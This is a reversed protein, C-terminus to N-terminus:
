KNEKIECKLKILKIAYALLSAYYKIQNEMSHDIGINPTTGLLLQDKEKAIRTRKKLPVQLVGVCEVTNDKEINIFLPTTYAPLLTNLDVFPDYITSSQMSNILIPKMSTIAEGIVGKKYSYAQNTVLSFFSSFNAQLDTPQSIQKTQKIQAAEKVFYFKCIEVGFLEKVQSHVKKELSILNESELCQLFYDNLMDNYKLQIKSERNIKIKKIMQSLYNACVVGYLEEDYGFGEVKSNDSIELIGIVDNDIIIPLCFSSLYSLQTVQQGQQSNALSQVQNHQIVLDDDNDKLQIYIYRNSIQNKMNIPLKGRIIDQFIGKAPLCNQKKLEQDYSYMVGSISELIWLRVIESKFLNPFQAAVSQQIKNLDDFHDFEHILKVLQALRNTFDRYSVFQNAMLSVLKNRKEMNKNRSIHIAFNNSGHEIIDMLIQSYEFKLCNIRFDTDSPIIMRKLLNLSNQEQFAQKQSNQNSNEEQQLQELDKASIKKKMSEVKQTLTAIKKNLKLENENLRLIDIELAVNDKKLSENDKVLDSLLIRLNHLSNQSNSSTQQIQVQNNAHNPQQQNNAGKITPSNINSAAARENAYEVFNTDLILELRQELQKIAKKDVKMQKEQQLIKRNLKNIEIENDKKMQLLQRNEIQVHHLQAQLSEIQMKFFSIQEQKEQQKSNILSLKLENKASESLLDTLQHVIEMPKKFDAEKKGTSRLEEELLVLTQLIQNKIQEYNQQMKINQNKILEYSQKQSYFSDSHNNTMLQSNIQNQQWKPTSVDSYLPSNLMSNLKQYQNKSNFDSQSSILSKKIESKSKYDFYFNRKDQSTQPTNKVSKFYYNNQPFQQFRNLNQPIFLKKIKTKSTQDVSNNKQGNINPQNPNQKKNQDVQDNQQQSIPPTHKNQLNQDSGQQGEEQRFINILDKQPSNVVENQSSLNSLGNNLQCSNNKQRNKVSLSKNKERSLIVSNRNIIDPYNSSPQFKYISNNM